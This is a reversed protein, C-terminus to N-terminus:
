PNQSDTKSVGVDTFIGTGAILTQLRARATEVETRMAELDEYAEYAERIPVVVQTWWLRGILRDKHLLSRVFQREGMSITDRVTLGAVVDRITQRDYRGTLITSLLPNLIMKDYRFSADKPTLAGQSFTSM